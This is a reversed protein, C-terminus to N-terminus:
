RKEGGTTEDVERVVLVAAVPLPEGSPGGVRIHEPLAGLHQLLTRASTNKDHVEYDVTHEVTTEDGITTSSVKHKIKRVARTAMPNRGEVTTIRGGQSVTFDKTIDVHTLNALETIIQEQQTHLRKLREVRLEEIAKAVRPIKKLKAAASSPFKTSGGARIYANTADFDIQYENVFTEQFETLQESKSKGSRVYVCREYADMWNRMKGARIDEQDASLAPPTPLEPEGM